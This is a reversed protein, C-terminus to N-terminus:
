SLRLVAIFNELSIEGYIEIEIKELFEKLELLLRSDQLDFIHKKNKEIYEIKRRIITLIEARRKELKNRENEYEEVSIYGRFYREDLILLNYRIHELEDSLNKFEKVILALENYALSKRSFSFNVLIAKDDNIIIRSPEISIIKGDVKKIFIRKVSEDDKKLIIRKIFGIYEEDESYVKIGLIKTFFKRGKYSALTKLAIRPVNMIM